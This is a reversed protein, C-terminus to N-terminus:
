NADQMVVPWRHDGDRVEGNKEVPQAVPIRRQEHVRYGLVLGATEHDDLVDRDVLLKKLPV